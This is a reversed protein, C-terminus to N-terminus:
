ARKCRRAFVLGALGFGFVALAGPEPVSAGADLVFDLTTVAFRRGVPLPDIIVFDARSITAAGDLAGLFPDSLLGVAGTTFTGIITNSSDFLTLQAEQTGGGGIAVNIELGVGQVPTDFLFSLKAFNTTFDNDVGAELIRGAGAPFGIDTDNLLRLGGGDPNSGTLQVAGSDSALVFPNPPTSFQAGLAAWDFFDNGALAARSAIQIPAAKVPLSGLTVAFLVGVAILRISKM